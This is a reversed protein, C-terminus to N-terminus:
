LTRINQKYTFFSSYNQYLQVHQRAQQHLLGTQFCTLNNAMDESVPSRQQPDNPASKNAFFMSIAPIYIIQLFNTM